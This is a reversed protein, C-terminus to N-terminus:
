NLEPGELSKFGVDQIARVIQENIVVARILDRVDDPQLYCRSPIQNNVENM